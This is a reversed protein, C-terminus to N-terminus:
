LIIIVNEKINEVLYVIIINKLNITNQNLNQFEKKKIKIKTNM